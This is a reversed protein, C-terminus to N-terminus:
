LYNNYLFSYHYGKPFAWLFIISFIIDNIGAINEEVVGGKEVNSSFM